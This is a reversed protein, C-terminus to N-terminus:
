SLSIVHFLALSPGATPNRNPCSPVNKRLLQAASFACGGHPCIWSMLAFSQSSLCPCSLSDGEVQFVKGLGEEGGEPQSGLQVQFGAGMARPKLDPSSGHLHGTAAEWERGSLAIAEHQRRRHVGPGPGEEGQEACNGPVSAPRGPKRQHATSSLKLILFAPARWLQPSKINLKELTYLM